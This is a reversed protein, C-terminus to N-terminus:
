HIELRSYHCTYRMNAFHADMAGGQPFNAIMRKMLQCFCSYALAEDDTVVLLPAVLDCMGQM